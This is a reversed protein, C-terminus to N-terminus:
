RTEGRAAASATTVLRAVRNGDHEDLTSAYCVIAGLYPEVATLAEVALALKAEAALARDHLRQNEEAYSDCVTQCELTHAEFAPRILSLIASAQASWASSGNVFDWYVSGNHAPKGPAFWDEYFQKMMARAVDEESPLGVQPDPSATM